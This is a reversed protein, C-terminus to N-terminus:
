KISNEPVTELYGNENLYQHLSETSITQIKEDVNGLIASDNETLEDSSQFHNEEIYSNLEADSVKDLASSIDMKQYKEFEQEQKKDSYLFSGTILAGAFVAAAAYNLWTRIRSISIIKAPEKLDRVRLQEFYSAPVTFPMEKSIANLIPTEEADEQGEEEEIRKLVSASFTEFYAAPMQYPSTNEVPLDVLVRDLIIEPLQLFYTEDVLYPVSIGITGIAPAIENIEQLITNRPNM